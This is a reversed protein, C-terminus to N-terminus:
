GPHGIRWIGPRLRKLQWSIGCMWEDCPAAKGIKPKSQDDWIMLKKGGACIVVAKVLRDRSKPVCDNRHVHLSM